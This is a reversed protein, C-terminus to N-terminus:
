IGLAKYWMAECTDSDMSEALMVQYGTMGYRAGVVEARRGMERMVTLYHESRAVRRMLARYARVAQMARSGIVDRVDHHKCKSM